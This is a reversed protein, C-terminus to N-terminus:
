TKAVGLSEFYKQFTTANLAFLGGQNLTMGNWTGTAVNSTPEGQAWPNRLVIYKQADKYMWGFVSYVHNAVIGADDYQGGTPISEDVGYTDAVMPWKTKGGVSNARVLEYLDSGSRSSCSWSDSGWGTIHRLAKTGSGGSLKSYNPKDSSTGARYQAYAKEYIAPWMEGSDTSKAYLIIQNSSRVPIKETVSYTKAAGLLGTYFTIPHPGDGSCAHIKTPHTFAVSALAAMFYCDGVAGQDPDTREISDGIYDGKDMWIGDPIEWDGSQDGEHAPLLVSTLLRRADVNLRALWETSMNPIKVRALDEDVPLGAPTLRLGTLASARSVQV